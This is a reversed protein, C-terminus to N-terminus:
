SQVRQLRLELHQQRRQITGLPKFPGAFLVAGRRDAIQNVRDAETIDTDLAMACIFDEAYAIKNGDVVRQRRKTWAFCAVTALAQFDPADPHGRADTTATANRQIDARMTMRTRVRSAVTTM